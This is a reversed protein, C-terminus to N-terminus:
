RGAERALTDNPRVSLPTKCSDHRCAALNKLSCGFMSFPLPMPANNMRDRSGTRPASLAPEQEVLRSFSTLHVSTGICLASATRESFVVSQQEILHPTPWVASNAKGLSVGVQHMVHMNQMV